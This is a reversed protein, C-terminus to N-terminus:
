QRRFCLSGRVASPPSRRCTAAIRAFRTKCSAAPGPNSVLLTSNRGCQASSGVQPRFRFPVTTAPRRHSVRVTDSHNRARVCGMSTRVFADIFPLPAPESFRLPWPLARRRSAPFDGRGLECVTLQIAMARCQRFKACWKCLCFTYRLRSITAFCHDRTITVDSPHASPCISCTKKRITLDTTIAAMM